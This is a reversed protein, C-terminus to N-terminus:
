SELNVIALTAFLAIIMFVIAYVAAYQAMDLRNGKRRKASLAGLVAGVIGSILIIM